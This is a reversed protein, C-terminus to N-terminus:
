YRYNSSCGGISDAFQHGARAAMNSRQTSNMRQYYADRPDYRPRDCDEDDQIEIDRQTHSM